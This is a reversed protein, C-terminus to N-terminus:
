KEVLAGVFRAFPVIDQGVSAQELATMYDQRQEVPVVTWSYGGSALMANMLFRGIRGNGDSYPHIYVFVFHGLVARVAAEKEEELLEFFAPMLDRVAEHNPPVHMSRRIYVPNNRYGALDSPSLLGATVSPAFLERYWAGHGEEAIMGANDGKLVGKISKEVEQFAQWYGRAALANRQEQDLANADPNWNGSRVKEILEPTVQYGEISLSNYADNAYNEEVKKIYDEPNKPLGIATPFNELVPERMAQWMLRIRNVYPSLDRRAFVLKPEDEFPDNERIGYGASNMTSVIDDAIRTRGINRFAGALRGAITSHGGELLLSLLGSADPLSSLAARADTPSQTFFNSSAAILASELSFVRMGNLKKYEKEPPLSARIDLLSTNHPLNIVKNGAKPHRVLLQNPVLWNGSHLLLSQEPSFCWTQGFREELYTACFGWFSTYWVTSEGQSENPSSAIYWGKMVEHLFGNFVLRERHTRTMDKSQIAIKGENQLAKLVSLSEALKESPTAM